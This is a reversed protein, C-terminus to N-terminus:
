HSLFDRAQGGGEAWEEEEEGVSVLARKKRSVEQEKREAEQLDVRVERLQKQMRRLAESSKQSSEDGEQKHLRELQGRLRQVQNELRRVASRELDLKQELERAQSPHPSPSLPSLLSSPLFTVGNM